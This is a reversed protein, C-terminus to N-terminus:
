GSYLATRAAAYAERIDAVPSPDYALTAGSRAGPWTPPAEAGSLV